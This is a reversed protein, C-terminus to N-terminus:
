SPESGQQLSLWDPEILYWTAFFIDFGTILTRNHEQDYGYGFSFVNFTGLNIDVFDDMLFNNVLVTTGSTDTWRATYTGFLLDIATINLKIGNEFYTDVVTNHGTDVNTVETLVVTREGFRYLDGPQWERTAANASAFSSCIFILLLFINSM